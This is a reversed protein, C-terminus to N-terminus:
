VLIGVYINYLKEAVDVNINFMPIKGPFKYRSAVEGLLIYIYIIVETERKRTIRSNSVQATRGRKRFTRLVIM